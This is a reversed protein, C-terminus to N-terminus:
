RVKILVSRKLVNVRTSQVKGFDVSIESIVSKLRDIKTINRSSNIPTM